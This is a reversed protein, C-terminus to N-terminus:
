KPLFSKVTLSDKSRYILYASDDTYGSVPIFHDVVYKYILSHSNKYRWKEQGNLARDYILVFGPNAAKIREIENQQFDAGRPYM